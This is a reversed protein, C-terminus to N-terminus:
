PLVELVHVSAAKARRVMDATGRGGPFAVVLDPNNELMKQNRIPGAKNGYKKWQAAVAHANVEPIHSAWIACLTDAGQANGHFLHKIPTAAHIGNLVETVKRWDDYARGGCVIVRM